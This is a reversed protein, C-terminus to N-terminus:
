GPHFAYKFYDLEQNLDAVDKPDYRYDVAIMRQYYVYPSTLHTREIHKTDIEACRIYKKKVLKKCIHCVILNANSLGLRQSTSYVNIFSIKKKLYM